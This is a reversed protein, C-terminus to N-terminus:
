ICKVPCLLEDEVNARYVVLQNPRTQKSCKTLGIINFIVKDLSQDMRIVSLMHLTHIWWGALITLLAATKLTLQKLSLSDNPGLSKLYSLVKNVGMDQHIKVTSTEPSLNREYVSVSVLTGRTPPSRPDRSNCKNCKPTDWYCQLKTRIWVIHALFWSSSKRNNSPILSRDTAFTWGNDCQHTIHRSHASGGHHESSRSSMLHCDRQQSTGSLIAAVLSLRDWIPRQSNTGPLQLLHQHALILLPM